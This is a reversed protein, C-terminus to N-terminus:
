SSGGEAKAIAARIADFARAEDATRSGAPRAVMCGLAATLAALLEPAAAILRADADINCQAVYFNGGENVHKSLVAPLGEGLPPMFDWPGPTHKQTENM